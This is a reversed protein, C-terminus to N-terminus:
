RYVEKLRGCDFYRNQYRYCINWIKFQKDDKSKRIPTYLKQYEKNDIESSKLKLKLEKKQEQLLILERQHKLEILFKFNSIQSEYKLIAKRNTYQYITQEKVLVYLNTQNEIEKKSSSCHYSHERFSPSQNIWGRNQVYQYELPVLLHEDNVRYLKSKWFLNIVMDLSAVTMFYKFMTLLTM